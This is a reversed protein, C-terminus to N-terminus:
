FMRFHLHLCAKDQMLDKMVKKDGEIDFRFKMTPYIHVEM